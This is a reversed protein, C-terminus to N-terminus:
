ELQSAFRFIGESSFCGEISNDFRERFLNLTNEDYSLSGTVITEIFEPSFVNLLVSFFGVVIYDAATIPITLIDIPNVIEPKISDLYDELYDTPINLILLEGSRIIELKEDSQDFISFISDEDNCSSGMRTFEIEKSDESFTILGSTKEMLYSNADPVKLFLYHEYTQDASYFKYFHSIEFEHEVGYIEVPINVPGFGWVSDETLDSSCISNNIGQECISEGSSGGSKSSGCATINVLFIILFLNLFICLNSHFLKM